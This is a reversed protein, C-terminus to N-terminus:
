AQSAPERNAMEIGRRVYDFGSLATFLAGLVLAINRLWLFFQNPFGANVLALLVLTIQFFTSVKGLTTPLFQGINRLWRLLLAGIVIVVDRGVVLVVLWVPFLGIVGLVIFLTELLVKDALPDLIAGLRATVRLRRAAFGDFWDTLGAVLVAALAERFRAQLLLWAIFPAAILRILTLLHPLQRM